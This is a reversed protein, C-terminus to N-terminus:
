RKGRNIPRKIEIKVEKKGSMTFGSWAAAAFTGVVADLYDHPSPGTSWIYVKGKDGVAIDSLQEACIHEAFLKHIEPKEGYLSCSGPRGVTSLFGRQTFERWRCSNHVIFRNNNSEAMHCGDKATNPVTTKHNPFYRHHAIGRSAYVPFPLRAFRVFNYVADSAFGSDIMFATLKTVNNGKTIPISLIYAM